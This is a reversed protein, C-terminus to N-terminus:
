RIYKAVINNLAYLNIYTTNEKHISIEAVFYEVM